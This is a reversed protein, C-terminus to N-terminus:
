QIISLLQVNVAASTDARQALELFAIGKLIEERIEILAPVTPRLQLTPVYVRDPAPLPLKFRSHVLSWGSGDPNPEIKLGEPVEGLLTRMTDPNSRAEWAVSYAFRGEIGKLRQLTFFLGLNERLEPFHYPKQKGPDTDALLAVSLEGSLDNDLSYLLLDGGLLAEQAITSQVIGLLYRLRTDQRSRLNTLNVESQPGIFDKPTLRTAPVAQDMRWALPEYNQFRLIASAIQLVDAPQFLVDTRVTALNQNRSFYPPPLTGSLASKHKDALEDCTQSPEHLWNTGPSITYVSDVAMKYTQLFSLREGDLPALFLPSPVGTGGPTCIIDFESAVAELQTISGNLVDRVARQGIARDVANMFVYARKLEVESLNHLMKALVAIDARIYFLTRMVETHQQELQRKLEALTQQIQSLTEKIKEQSAQIDKLMETHMNLTNMVEQHRAEAAADNAGSDGFPNGTLASVAGLYNGSLVGQAVQYAKNIDRGAKAVQTMAKPIDGKIGVGSLMEATREFAVIYQGSKEQFESAVKKFDSGVTQWNNLNFDGKISAWSAGKQGVPALLNGILKLDDMTRRADAILSLNQKGFLDSIATNTLGKRFNGLQMTLEESHKTLKKLEEDGIQILEKKKEALLAVANAMNTVGAEVKLYRTAKQRLAEGVFDNAKIGAADAQIRLLDIKAKGLYNSTNSLLQAKVDEGLQDLSQRFKPADRIFAEFNKQIAQLAVQVDNGSRKIEKKIKEPDLLTATLRERERKVEEGFGELAERVVVRGLEPLSKLEPLKYNLDRASAFIPALYLGQHEASTKLLDLGEDLNLKKDRIEKEILAHLTIGGEPLSSPRPLREIRKLMELQGPTLKTASLFQTLNTFCLGASHGLFLFVFALHLGCQRPKRM